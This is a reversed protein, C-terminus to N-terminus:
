REFMESLVRGPGPTWDVGLITAVTPAVDLLDVDGITKGRAIRPGAVLLSARMEPLTPPYGHAGKYKGPEVLPGDVGNDFMVGVKAELVWKAQPLCGHPKMEEQTWVKAIGLRPDAALADVARGIAAEDKPETIVVGALGGEAMVGVSHRKVAKKDDTALLGKDRLYVLPRVMRSVPAFGHDSVVVITTHDLADDHAAAIVRALEGDITELMAKAQPSDPGHKHRVTDLDTFYVLTFDPKKDEILFVAATARGKDDRHEAPVTGKRAALEAALGPPSALVKMLKDDEDVKKRWFQPFSWDFSAGVTTPWYVNATRLGKDQAAQWLTRRKFDEAYWYWGGDNELKPDFPKNAVIGHEAPRAGTVMTAHAPYTVSPWVTTVSKARAGRAALGRLTPIRLSADDLDTARLADISVMITRPRPAAPPTPAPSPAASAAVPASPDLPPAPPPPTAPAGACSAVVISAFLARRM